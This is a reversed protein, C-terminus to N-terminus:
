VRDKFFGGLAKIGKEINEFSPNSFNFRITNCHGGDAFFETGQVYAAGCKEVAETLTAKTDIKSGKFEGWIFLGGEPNTHRYCDPMYKDLCETMLKLKQAYVPLVREVHKKVFGRKLMEGTIIQSLSSTHLDQGQKCITMKRIVDKHGAALAMRIGPSIIKSFSTIYIVNGTKDFTKIPPLQKGKFRLKTYPDDEIVVVNYKATMEAIAKRNALSYTNGTPNSFTPVVYLIKPKYQKIKAELDNLDLGDASANVGYAKAQYSKIIQLAALFTPNEVLAVDGKDLFARFSLDLGQQGGSVAIIEDLGIGTIGFDEKIYDIMSERVSIIGETTGYQMMDKLTGGDNMIVNVVSKFEEMPLMDNAPLGGAFSIVGGRALLKFIERTATGNLGDMRESFRYEM